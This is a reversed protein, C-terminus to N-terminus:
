GAVREEWWQVLFRYVAIPWLKHKFLLSSVYRQKRNNRGCVVRGELDVLSVQLGIDPSFWTDFIVFPNHGLEGEVTFPEEGEKHFTKNIEKEIADTVRRHYVVMDGPRFSRSYIGFVEELVKKIL